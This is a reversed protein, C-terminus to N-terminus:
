GLAIIMAIVFDNIGNVTGQITEIDASNQNVQNICSNTKQRWQDFTDEKPVQQLVIAM